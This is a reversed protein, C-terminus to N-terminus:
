RLTENYEYYLCIARKLQSQVTKSLMRIREDLELKKNYEQLSNGDIPIIRNCRGLRSIVDKAALPSYKHVSQLWDAFEITQNSELKQDFAALALWM